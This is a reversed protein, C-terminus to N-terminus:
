EINSHTEIKIYIFFTDSYNIDFYNTPDKQNQKTTNKITEAPKQKNNRTIHVNSNLLIYLLQSLRLTCGYDMIIILNKYDTITKFMVVM